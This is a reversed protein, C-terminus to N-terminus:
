SENFEGNFRLPGGSQLSVDSLKRQLGCDFRWLHHVTLPKYDLLRGAADIESTAACNVCTVIQSVREVRILPFTVPVEAVLFM